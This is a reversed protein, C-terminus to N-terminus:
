KGYKERMEKIKTILNQKFDEPEIVTCNAGFSLVRQTALFDNHYHGEIIAKNDIIELIKEETELIEENFNKLIFKIKTTNIEINENSSKRSLVSKVRRINLVISKKIDLNFGYIYLKDNKFTIKQAIIHKISEKKNDPNKYEIELIRNYKCDNVLDKILHTDYYKLISIGLLAEKSEEECIYFAIKKFLDDYEILTKLDNTQKITNYVKKLAFIEESTLKLCFPHKTLIYKYGTKQSSRCIECGMHKITNLDVRLIDNSNKADMIKLNIFTEKIEELSRPKTILLGMFILARLGTLSMQNLDTKEAIKFM